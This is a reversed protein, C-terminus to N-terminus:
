GGYSPKNKLYWGTLDAIEANYQAMWNNSEGYEKKLLLIQAFAYYKYIKIYRDPLSLLDTSIDAVKKTEPIRKFTVKVLDGNKPESYGLKGNVKYYSDAQIYALSTPSYEFYSANTRKVEVKKIDEYLFTIAKSSETFALTIPTDTAADTITFINQYEENFVEGYLKSDVENIWTVKTADSYPNSMQEDLEAIFEDVKQTSEFM